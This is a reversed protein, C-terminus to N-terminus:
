FTLRAQFEIVRGAYGDTATGFKPDPVVTSAKSFEFAKLNMKNFANFLNARFTLKADEHFLFPLGFDKGITLDVSSYHPGRFSNRGIGPIGKQSIDFFKQGGGPFNGGQTLFTDNSYDSGAGGLYAFPRAPCITRGFPTTSCNNFSVPTWPFGSHATLIGSIRWGGLTRGLLDKRGRLVPLEWIGTAVFYHTADYDSPGYEFRQDRPFTQNTEFGPGENSLTDFSKSWRYKTDFQFGNAFRRMVRVNLSNYNATVDPTPFFAPDVHPSAEDRVFLQNVIRVLKHSASGQYGLTLDFHAPLEREMELSYTYVYPTPVHAPVSWIEVCCGNPLNTTPDIGQALLPNVPYSNVTKDAGLTYLIKGGVFPDGPTGCCIGNRAFLPPNGRTNAFLSDPIRNYAIGFGGRFVTKNEFKVPSWAFGIRPAFNNRDPPYLEGTLRIFADALGQAGLVYKAIQGSPESLPTFYEYRLGLNLTLNPRVKWDTQGFLAYDSTRFHRRADAPAGTRPDTNIAEFIPADNAFNWLRVNSFLPRAGGLLNNNDQEKRVEVGFKLAHKSLIKSFTDRFAFTNQAFIGPTTESRDAGFRLRKGDTFLQEIEVRPVGFNVNSNSKVQDFHFRSVNFRAENLMTSSLTRNWLLTLAPNTPQLTLDAMPRGQAGADAGSNDSRTIYTSVAFQNKGVHYDVRANYQDGSFNGPFALQVKQLDPISDFGGGLAADAVYQGLAAAPSGVDLGGNVVQCNVNNVADFGNIDGCSPTLAQVSRPEAGPSSVINTSVGGSRVSQLLQRFEPTEVYQVDTDSTKRRLGEYSFLFFLKDKLIPGGISGGFNREKTEVRKHLPEVFDTKWGAFKNFANLGPEDYKLFASGHFANTGSKSIVKIQAGSGRGDEASYSTSLVRVESISEQNPTVVAAGGWTLSNVDVGDITFNNGSIRQGNATIQVQNEIAFIGKGSGGPGNVANPLHVANGSGDRASDGFVGPALRLLEYPDRGIQPLDQVQQATIADTINANEAQVGPAQETVTVVEQATGPQLTVNLGRTTEADVQVDRATNKKFTSAEVTVSYKGPTLGTVKYFGADGTVSSRSVGTAQNTVTVTAGPVVAGTKDTVTGQISAGYQAWAGTALLLPFAFQFFLRLVRKTRAM